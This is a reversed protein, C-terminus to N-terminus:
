MIGGKERAEDPYHPSTRVVDVIDNALETMRLGEESIDCETWNHEVTGGNIKVHLSYGIHPKQNCVNSLKKEALYNSLVMKKYIEQKQKASLQFDSVEIMEGNELDIQLSRNITDIVNKQNVGHKLIFEFYDQKPLDFDVYMVTFRDSQGSCGTVDYKIYTDTEERSMMDCSYKYVKQAGYQDETTDYHMDIGDAKSYLDYYIPDGEITYHLIRISAHKREAAKRHFLDLVNLHEVRGHINSVNGEKNLTLQEPEKGPNDSMTQEPSGNPANCGVLVIFVLLLVLLKRSM